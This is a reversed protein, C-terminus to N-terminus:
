IWKRGRDEQMLDLIVLAAAAEVVPVARLAVCPDHRGKVALKADAGDKYSISNQEISISPTPKFAARFTIPMGDSIGGLIGGCNNTRTKVGGDEMYFEDNNESGRIRAADFGRGFEIGKVAPISFVAQALRSELSDFMPEGLGAPAGTIECEIIGGVSDGAAMAEEIAEAFNDHRGGIEVAHAKILVGAAELYQIAIGGAVCLPATLRGSFHGGGSVDENGGYKVHATYDAHGPRPVDRMADYDSSRVNTNRILATLPAGCTKGDALGSIFEPVDAEKRPTSYRGQGPARRDMFRQLKEMDVAFGAPLGDITVGVAESHSQGFITVKILNGFSSAMSM